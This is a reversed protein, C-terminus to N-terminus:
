YTMIVLIDHSGIHWSLWYTMIVLIDHYSFSPSWGQRRGATPMGRFDGFITVGLRRSPWPNHAGCARVCDRMCAPARVAHRCARVRAWVPLTTVAECSPPLYNHGVYNHGVYNHGWVPLTTVAECSPPLYNHGIYNHGVYNHGWVPLTTVAECSPPLFTHAM